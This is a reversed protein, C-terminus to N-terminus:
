LPRLLAEQMVTAVLRGDQAFLMGRALGRGHNAWDSDIRFLLWQNLHAPAHLWIAHNLSTVLFTRGPGGHPAAAAGALWYDSLLLLLAQHDAEERMGEASPIRMWLDRTPSGPGDFLGEPKAPRLEVPFPMAFIRRLTDPLLDTHAVLDPLPRLKEPSIANGAQAFQHAPGEERAHFTCQFDFIARGDQSALVRRQAFRRGDNVREVVFDIPQDLRGSRLFLGSAQSAPWGPATRAAAALSQGLQQGGFTAGAYNDLNHRARFRDPEIEDLLLLEAASPPPQDLSPRIQPTQGMIDAIRRGLWANLGNRKLMARAIAPIASSM